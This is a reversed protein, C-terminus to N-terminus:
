FGGSVREPGLLWLVGAVGLWVYGLLLAVGSFRTLGGRALARLTRRLLTYYPLAHGIEQVFPQM